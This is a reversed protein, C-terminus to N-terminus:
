RPRRHPSTASASFIGPSTQGTQGQFKFKGSVSRGHFPISLSVSHGEEPTSSYVGAFAPPLDASLSFLPELAVQIGEISISEDGLRVTAAASIILSSRCIIREGPAPPQAVYRLRVQTPDLRVDIVIESPPALDSGAWTVEGTYTRSIAASLESPSPWKEYREEAGLEREEIRCGRSREADSNDTTSSAGADLAEPIDTGSQPCASAALALALLM